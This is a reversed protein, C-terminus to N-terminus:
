RASGSKGQEKRLADLNRRMAPRSLLGDVRQVVAQIDVIQGSLRGTAAFMQLEKANKARIAKVENRNDVTFILWPGNFQDDGTWADDREIADWAASVGTAIESFAANCMQIARTTSVSFRERLSNVLRLRVLDTFSYRRHSADGERERDGDLDLSADVSNGNIWKRLMVPELGLIACFIPAPFKLDRIKM